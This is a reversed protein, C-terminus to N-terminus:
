RPLYCSGGPMCCYAVDLDCNDDSICTRGCESCNSPTDLPTECGDSETTNCDGWDVLAYRGDGVCRMGCRGAACTPEAHARPPCIVGCGGCNMLNSDIGTECGDSTMMNCDAYGSACHIRCV